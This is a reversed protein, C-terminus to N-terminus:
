IAIALEMAAIIMVEYELRLACWLCSATIHGITLCIDGPIKAPVNIVATNISLNEVKIRVAIKAINMARTAQFNNNFTVGFGLRFSGPLTPIDNTPADIPLMEANTAIPPPVIDTGNIIQHLMLAWLATPVEAAIPNGIAIAPDNPYKTLPQFIEVVGSYVRPYM